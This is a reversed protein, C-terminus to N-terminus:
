STNKFEKSMIKLYDPLYERCIDSWLDYCGTLGQNANVYSSPDFHCHLSKAKGLYGEPIKMKKNYVPFRWFGVNHTEDFKGVDFSEFLLAMGEQEYFSSRNLYIERWEAALGEEAVFLYGANFGGYRTRHSRSAEESLLYHHPSLMVPHTLDQDIPRLLVIDADLFFTNGTERIAWEIVDMKRYIAPVSHFENKADVKQLLPQLPELHRPDAKVNFHVDGLQFKELFTKAATDCILYIPCDYLHKISLILM